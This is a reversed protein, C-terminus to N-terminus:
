EGCAARRLALRDLKQARTMPLQGVVRIETPCKYSVLQSACHASIEASDVTGGARPVVFAVVREGGSRVDPAGVVGAMGVSPHTYITEEVERPFVNFGKVFVVDKKRDTIFVFGDEDLHGIDGTYIFGDRITRATEEPRNRYGTMMHPGRVRLEGTEGAPLVRVGADVGVVQVEVGPVTRGVSGPRVGSLPTAGSIPAIESMGYGEHIELGTARRWREMLDVPFPAGGAPCVRLSSLDASGLNGAALVGAYVAPPGGGFFTVRHRALLEVIPEPQFRAPIVTEGRASVPVLVGQLFGYIHTFPAIPLFVDREARAPWIYQMSRVAVMLRGHTHEVAKPFGTTGGSFLLAGPDAPTAARLGVPAEAEDALELITMDQGLCIASPIHLDRALDALMDRTAPACLIARPAAERLLPALEVAPYLPSVLAPVALAKLAAFYAIHFEVSNPLVLAVAEGPAVIAALRRALAAVARGTQRYTLAMGLHRLAVKDPTAAVANELMACLTSVSAGPKEATQLSLEPRMM